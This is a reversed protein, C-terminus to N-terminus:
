GCMRQFSDDSMCLYVVAEILAIIAPIFTWVFLICLVGLWPRNMYFHHIGLGGLFLALLVAVIREKRVSVSAHYHHVNVVQPVSESSLSNLAQVGQRGDVLKTGNVREVESNGPHQGSDLFENCFRCKIAQFAISEGCFPCHKELRVQSPVDPLSPPVVPNVVEVQSSDVSKSSFLGSVNSAAVWMGDGQRRVKTSEDITRNEALKKLQASEIPGLTKGRIEVFWKSSM